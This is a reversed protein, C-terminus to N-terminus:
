PNLLRRLAEVIHEQDSIEDFGAGSDPDRLEALIERQDALEVALSVLTHTQRRYRDQYAKILGEDWQAM